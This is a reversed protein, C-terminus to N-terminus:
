FEVAPAPRDARAYRNRLEAPPRPRVAAPGRRRASPARRGHHGASGRGGGDSSTISDGVRERDFTIADADTALAASTANAREIGARSSSASATNRDRPLLATRVGAGDGPDPGHAPHAEVKENLAPCWKCRLGERRGSGGRRRRASFAGRERQREGRGARPGRAHLLPPRFRAHANSRELRSGPARPPRLPPPPLVPVLLPRLHRRLPHRRDRRSRRRLLRQQPAENARGRQLPTLTINTIVSPYLITSQASSLVSRTAPAALLAVPHLFLLPHALGM